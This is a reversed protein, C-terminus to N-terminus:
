QPDPLWLGGASKPERLVVGEVDMRSGPKGGRVPRYRNWTWTAHRDIQLGRPIRERLSEVAMPFIKHGTPRENGAADLATPHSILDSTLVVTDGSSALANIHDQQVRLEFERWPTVWRRDAEGSKITGFRKEYLRQAYMRQPWGVQSLVCSSVVLDARAGDPLLQAPSTLRYSRALAEIADHLDSAGKAPAAMLEDVARVFAGNIGTLDMARTEVRSRLAPDKFVSAVTAELSPADIDVLVLREFARALDVLPLDFAHAAGVVLALGRRPVGRAAEDIFARNRQAHAWWGERNERQVTVIGASTEAFELKKFADGDPAPDFSWRVTGERATDVQALATLADGLNCQPVEDSLRSLRYIAHSFTVLVEFQASEWRRRGALAARLAEAEAATVPPKEANPVEKLYWGLAREVALVSAM